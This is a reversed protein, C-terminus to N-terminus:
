ATERRRAKVSLAEVAEVLISARFQEEGTRLELTDASLKRVLKL